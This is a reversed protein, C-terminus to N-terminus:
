TNRDLPILRFDAANITLYIALFLFSNRNQQESFGEITPNEAILLILSWRWPWAGWWISFQGSNFIDCTWTGFSKVLDSWLYWNRSFRKSCIWSSSVNDWHDYEYRLRKVYKEAEKLLSQEAKENVFNKILKFDKAILDETEKDSSECWQLRSEAESMSSFPRGVLTCPLSLLHNCAPSASNQVRACPSLGIKSSHKLRSFTWLCNVGNRALTNLAVFKLM